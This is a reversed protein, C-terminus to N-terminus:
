NKYQQPGMLPLPLGTTGYVALTVEVCWGRPMFGKGGRQDCLLGLQRDKGLSNCSQTEMQMVVTGHSCPCRAKEGPVGLMCVLSCSSTWPHKNLSYMFM